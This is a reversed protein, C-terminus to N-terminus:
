RGRRVDRFPVDRDAAYERPMMLVRESIMNRSMETSGGAISASQRMLAAVGVQQLVSRDGIQGVVSIDGALELMVDTRLQNTEASGLRMMSSSHAPYDASAMGKTVRRILQANAVEQAHMGGILERVAPDKEKGVKRAMSVPTHSNHATGRARVMGSAYPSGGGVAQREYFLQRQGVTWGDNETGVLNEAPVVLDTFFEECFETSGNVMQVRNMHTAPDHVPVIIMSLGRHKPADWDTRVLCTAYDAAFAFTSWCKQGNIIYTDGDRQARTLLGALDSGGSPESLFQCLVLEGSIAGRVYKQKQEETGMDLLMASCIGLSPVNLAVPMEYPASEENFAAQYERTLGQGGYETPFCIGSFGGSFLLKQLDRADLWNQEETDIGDRKPMTGAKPMNKDLWVRARQRFDEVSESRQAM